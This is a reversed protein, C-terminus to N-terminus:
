KFNVSYTTWSSRNLAQDAFSGCKISYLGDKKLANKSMCTRSNTFSPVATTSIHICGTLGKRHYISGVKSWKARDFGKRPFLIHCLCLLIGEGERSERDGERRRTFWSDMVIAFLRKRQVCVACHVTYLLM